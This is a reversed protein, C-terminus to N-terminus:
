ALRGQWCRVCIATDKFIDTYRYLLGEQGCLSHWTLPELAHLKQALHVIPIALGAKTEGVTM